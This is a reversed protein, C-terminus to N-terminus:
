DDCRGYVNCQNGEGRSPNEGYIGGKGKSGRHWEDGSEGHWEYASEEYWGSDEIGCAALLLLSLMVLSARM